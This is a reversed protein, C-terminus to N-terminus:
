GRGFICHVLRDVGQGVGDGGAGAGGDKGAVESCSLPQM